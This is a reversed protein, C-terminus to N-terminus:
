SVKIKKNTIVSEKHRVILKSINKGLTIAPREIAYYMISSLILTGVLVFFLIVSIPLLGNLIHVFSFLVVIHSLYLSYSIQGIYKVFKNKLLSSFYGSSISIIILIGAGIATLWSDIVTRYFPNLNPILINLLFSPHAYLFLIIGTGLIIIRNRNSFDIFKNIIIERYKALLAGIIFIASYHISVYLETGLFSANTFFSYLVSGLSLGLGVGMGKILNLRVIAFMILPFVLSIRMEHVLSWVVNNLESTFTKILLVHDIISNFNLSNSWNFNFWDTLGNIQKSYFLERSIYAILISVIYPIYIRCFRRVAYTGYNFKGFSNTSYFPLALVFGSLVFFLTVAESGAVLFRLPGYEFLLKSLLTENFILYIHGFLVSLAALGRLSDLEEYRDIM